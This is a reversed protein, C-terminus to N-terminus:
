SIDMQGDDRTDTPSHRTETPSHAIHALVSERRAIMSNLTERRVVVPSGRGSRQSGKPKNFEGSKREEECTPCPGPTGPVDYLHRFCPYLDQAYPRHHFDPDMMKRITPLVKVVALVSVQRTEDNTRAAEDEAFQGLDRLYKDLGGLAESYKFESVSHSRAAQGGAETLRSEISQTSRGILVTAMELFVCGLSFIDSREDRTVENMAEPDAYKLTKGTPGDSHHGTEFHTSLGFDTLIPMGFQDIVVNEPKIDKHRIRVSSRHLYAVAQSLCGFYTHLYPLKWYGHYADDDLQSANSQQSSSNSRSACELMFSQLNCQAPPYMAIGLIHKKINQTNSHFVQPRPNRPRDRVEVKRSQLCYDEYSAVYVVIHPHKIAAMNRVEQLALRRSNSDPGPPRSNEKCVIVKLALPRHFNAGIPAKVRYVITSGSDGLEGQHEFPLPQVTYEKNAHHFVKHKRPDLGAERVPGIWAESTEEGERDWQFNDGGLVFDSIPLLSSSGDSEFSSM